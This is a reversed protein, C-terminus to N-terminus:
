NVTNNGAQEAIRLQRAERMLQALEKGAAEALQRLGMPTAAAPFRELLDAVGMLLVNVVDAVNVPIEGTELARDAHVNAIAQQIAPILREVLAEDTIAPWEPKNM